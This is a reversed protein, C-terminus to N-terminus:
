EAAGEPVVSLDLSARVSAKATLPKPAEKPLAAVIAELAEKLPEDTGVGERVEELVVDDKVAKVAVVAHTPTNSSKFELRFGAEGIQAILQSIM